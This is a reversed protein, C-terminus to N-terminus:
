WPANRNQHISLLYEHPTILRGAFHDFAFSRNSLKYKLFGMQIEQVSNAGTSPHLLAAKPKACFERCNKSQVNNLTVQYFDLSCMTNLRVLIQNLTSIDRLNAYPSNGYRYGLSEVKSILGEALSWYGESNQEVLPWNNCSLNYDYNGFFIGHLPINTYTFDNVLWNVGKITEVIPSIGKHNIGRNKFEADLYQLNQLSETKPAFISEWNVSELKELLKLDYEFFSTTPNNIRIHVPFTKSIDSLFDSLFVLAKRGSLKLGFNNETDVADQLSDELDLLIEVRNSLARNILRKLAIPKYLPFCQILRMM